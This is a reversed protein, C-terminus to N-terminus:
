TSGIPCVPPESGIRTEIMFCAGTGSDAVVVYEISLSARNGRGGIAGNSDGPRIASGRATNRGSLCAYVDRSQISTKLDCSYGIRGGSQQSDIHAHVVRAGFHDRETESMAAVNDVMLGDASKLM